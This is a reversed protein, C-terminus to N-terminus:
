SSWFQCMYSWIVIKYFNVQRLYIHERSRRRTVRIPLRYRDRCCTISLNAPLYLLCLDSTAYGLDLWPRGGGVTILRAYAM